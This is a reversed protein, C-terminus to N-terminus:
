LNTKLNRIHVDSELSFDGPQRNPNINVILEIHIRATKTVRDATSVLLTNAEDYYTFMPKSRIDNLINESIEFVDESGLVYTLPWSSAQTTGKRLISKSSSSVQEQWDLKFEADLSHSVEGVECIDDVKSSGDATVQVIGDAAQITIDFSTSDQYTEACQGCESGGSCLTGQSIGDVTIDATENGSNLDGEVAVQLTASNLAGALFNSFTVQCSGGATFSMCSQTQSGTTGGAPNIMYRVREVENDKDIDSYFILEYDDAKEIIYTGDEGTTAERIEQVMQEMGRRAEQIAQSQEFTHGQTRYSM